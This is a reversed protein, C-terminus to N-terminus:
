QAAASPFSALLDQQNTNTLILENPVWFSLPKDVRGQPM